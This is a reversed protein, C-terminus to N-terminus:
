SRKAIRELHRRRVSASTKRGAKTWIPLMCKHCRTWRGYRPFIGCERCLLLTERSVVPKTM